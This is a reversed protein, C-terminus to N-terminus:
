KKSEREFKEFVYQIPCFLITYESLIHFYSPYFPYSLISSIM